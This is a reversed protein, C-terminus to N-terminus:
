HSDNIFGGIVLALGGVVFTVPWFYQGLDPAITNALAITGVIIFVIGVVAAGTVTGRAAPSASSGRTGEPVILWMVFYILFGSGGGIALVVFAIRFWVPDVGFHEGLGGAVGAIRRNTVSRLLPSSGAAEKTNTQSM